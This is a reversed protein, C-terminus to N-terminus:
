NNLVALGFGNRGFNNGNYLMYHRQNLKFIHPYHMDSSDWGSQSLYIGVKKDDRNWDILNKSWAYGIRYGRKNNRFDLGYRYSFYMHYLGRYYFVDPGAQCEDEELVSKIPQKSYKEWNIGDKSIALKIKYITEAVGSRDKIWKEGAIYFMYFIDNYIRVKPGSVQYPDNISSTIIPGDSIRKFRKGDNSMALGISVDHTTSVRRTWGAYYLYYKNNFFNICTPYIGFEDFTGLKGLDLIPSDAIRIITKLNNKDLDLFSTYSVYQKNEDRKPRCSFYVRVCNKLVVASTCQAFEKMWSKGKIKTPDFIQGLKKWKFM